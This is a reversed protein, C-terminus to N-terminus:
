QSFLVSQYPLWSDIFRTSIIWVYFQLYSYLLTLLVFINKTYNIKLSNYIRGICYGQFLILQLGLRDALTTKEFYLLLLAVVLILLCIYYFNNEQKSISMQNRLFFFTLFFPINLLVRYYAGRSQFHIGDGFYYFLYLNIKDRAIFFIFCLLLILFIVFIANKKKFYLLGFPLTIIHTLFSFILLINSKLDKNKFYYYLSLALFSIALSQRVYGMHVVIALYSTFFGFVIFNGVKLIKCFKTITYIYIISCIFNFVIFSKFIKYISLNFLFWVVSDKYSKLKILEPNFGFNMKEYLNDGAITMFLAYYNNWDGGIKNRLGFIILCFVLYNIWLFNVPIKGINKNNNILYTLIFPSIIIISYIVM